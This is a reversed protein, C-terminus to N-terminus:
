PRDRTSARCRASPESWRLASSMECVRSRASRTIGDSRVTRIPAGGSQAPRGAGAPGTEAHRDRTRRPGVTVTCPGPPYGTQASAVPGLALAFLGTVLGVLAALVKSRRM